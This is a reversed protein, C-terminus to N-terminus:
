IPIWSNCREALANLLAQTSLSRAVETEDQDEDFRRKSGRATESGHDVFPMTKSEAKEKLEAQIKEQEKPTKKWPVEAPIRYKWKM